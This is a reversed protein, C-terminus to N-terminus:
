SNQQQEAVYEGIQELEHMFKEKDYLSGNLYTSWGNSQKALYVAENIEEDTAGYMRAAAQHFNACYWCHLVSAVGLGILERYKQPIISEELQFKKFLEWEYQLSEEPIGNLFGPVIGLHNKIDTLISNKNM